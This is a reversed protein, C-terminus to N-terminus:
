SSLLRNKARQIREHPTVVPLSQFNMPPITVNFEGDKNLYVFTYYGTMIGNPTSFHTCSVYEHLAGPYMIPYEGVVAPGHVEEEFGDADTIYWHRTVLQCRDMQTSLFAVRIM